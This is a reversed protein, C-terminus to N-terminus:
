PRKVPRTGAKFQREIAEVDKTALFEVRGDGLLVNAGDFSKAHRGPSEFAVVDRPTLSAYRELGDVYAYSLHGRGPALDAVIASAQTAPSREDDSSPCVFVEPVLDETVILTALDPPMADGHDNAYLQIAQGIQMLNSRCRGGNGHFWTDRSRFSPLFISVILLVLLTVVIWVGRNGSRHSPAPADRSEYNLDSM